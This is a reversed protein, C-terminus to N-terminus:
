SLVCLVKLTFCMVNVVQPLPVNFIKANVGNVPIDCVYALEETDARSVYVDFMALLSITLIILNPYHEKFTNFFQQKSDITM